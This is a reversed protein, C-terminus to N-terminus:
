RIIKESTFEAIDVVNGEDLLPETLVETRDYPLCWVRKLSGKKNDVYYLMTGLFRTVPKLSCLIYKTEIVELLPNWKAHVLIYYNEKGKHANIIKELELRHNASLENRTTHIDETM